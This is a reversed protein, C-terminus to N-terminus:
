AVKSASLQRNGRFRRDFGDRRQDHLRTLGDVLLPVTIGLARRILRTHLSTEGQAFGVPAADPPTLAAARPPALDFVEALTRVFRHPNTREGGAVHYVGSLGANWARDLIDSLDTALIPTAHPLCDFVCSRESELSALIGEIWGTGDSLPCWGYAHTRVVLANPCAEIAYAEIARLTQARESECFSTSTETHFMWPGTFVADSSILTLASGHDRAARIWQRAAASLAGSSFQFGARHWPSDGAAGCVVIRDPRHATIFDHIAQEDGRPLSATECGEISVPASESIGVVHHKDALHAALNAGVVNDIGAILLNEM